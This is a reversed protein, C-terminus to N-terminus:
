PVSKVACIEAVHQMIASATRYRAGAAIDIGNLLEAANFGQMLRSLILGDVLMSPSPVARGIVDYRAANGFFAEIAASTRRPGLGILGAM